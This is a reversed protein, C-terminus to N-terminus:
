FFIIDDIKEKYLLYDSNNSFENQIMELTTKFIPSSFINSIEEEIPPIFNPQLTCEITINENEFSFQHKLYYVNKKNEHEFYIFGNELFFQYFLNKTSKTKLFIDNETNNGISLYYNDEVLASKNLSKHIMNWKM